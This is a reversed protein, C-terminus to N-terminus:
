HVIPPLANGRVLSFDVKEELAVDIQGVVAVNDGRVIFLGLPVQEVGTESYTREHCDELVLSMKSLFVFAGFVFFSFFFIFNKKGINTVQDSGKLTGVLHRGDNTIVSVLSDILSINFFRIILFFSFVVFGLIGFAHSLCFISTYIVRLFFLQSM